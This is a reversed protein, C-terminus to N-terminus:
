GQSWPLGAAKWGAIRGRQRSEPDLPGEFGEAVNSCKQYGADRAARAAMRSRAGSRCIFFLETERGAGLEQLQATLQSLFDPNPQSDPYTQWEILLPRRGVADLEPLGVFAWESQTRVDILVAKPDAELREWVAAVPVDDITGGGLVAM